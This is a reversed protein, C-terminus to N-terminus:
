EDNPANKELPPLVIEQGTSINRFSSLSNAKAVQIYFDGNGYIEYAMLPLNDGDKVTRVHTLDPSNNDQRLVRKEQEIYNLFKANLKARLPEGNQHFLTYNIDLSTLICDFVLQEGWCIKLYKPKHIDGKMFYVTNLFDSVQVSVKKNILKETYGQVTKTGDFVFELSLEEPATATFKADIGQSGQAKKVEYEVKYNKSYTEPNIPLEFNPYDADKKSLKKDTFAEILVKTLKGDSM